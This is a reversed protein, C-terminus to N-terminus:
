GLLRRGSGVLSRIAPETAAGIGAGALSGVISAGIPHEKAAESGGLLAKSAVLRMAQPFSGQEQELASINKKLNERSADGLGSGELATGAGGVLAGLGAGLAHERFSATKERNKKQESLRGAGFAGSLGVASLGTAGVMHGAGEAVEGRHMLVPGTLHHLVKDRVADAVGRKFPTAGGHKVTVSTGGKGKDAGESSESEAPAPAGVPSPQGAPAGAAPGQGAQAGAPDQPQGQVPQGTAPDVQPAGGAMGQAAPDALVQTPPEQSALNMLQGRMDQFAMRMQAAQMQQQLKEDGAQMVQQMALSTAQQAQSQASTVALQSQEAQQQLQAAQQGAQESAQTAAELQQQAEMYRQKYYDESAASQAQQGGMENQMWASTRQDEGPTLGSSGGQAPQEATGAMMESLAVKFAATKQETLKAGLMGVTAGLGAGLGAARTSKGILSGAAGGLGGTVAGINTMRNTREREGPAWDYAIKVGEFAGDPTFVKPPLGQLVSLMRESYYGETGALMREAFATKQLGEKGMYKRKLAENLARNYAVKEGSGGPKLDVKVSAGGAGDKPPVGPPSAPPGAPPAVPPPGMGAEISAPAAVPQPLLRQLDDLHEQEVALYEEIKYKSPDEGVAAHLAQWSAISETEIQILNNVVEIPDSAPPPMPVEGIPPQGGLVAMRRLLFEAHELEEDAHEQFEEALGERALDRLTQAYITYALVSRFENQVVAGMLSVVDPAPPAATPDIMDEGLKHFEALFACAEGFPIRNKLYTEFSM